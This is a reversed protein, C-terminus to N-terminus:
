AKVSNRKKLKQNVQNLKAANYIAISPLYAESEALLISDKVERMITKLPNLIKHLAQVLEVDKIIESVDVNDPVLEPHQRAIALCEYVFDITNAKMKPLAMKEELTLTKLDPMKQSVFEIADLIEKLDQQPISTSIVNSYKM